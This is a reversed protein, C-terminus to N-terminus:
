CSVEYFRLAMLNLFTMGLDERDEFMWEHKIMKLSISIM